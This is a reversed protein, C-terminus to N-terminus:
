IRLKLERVFRLEEADEAVLNPWILGVFRRLTENGHAGEEPENCQAEEKMVCITFRYGCVGPEDISVVLAREGQQEAHRAADGEQEAPSCRRFVVESHRGGGTEDCHQGNTFMHSNNHASGEFTGLSWQQGRSGDAELHVQLIQKRHCYQYSWYGGTDLMLCKSGLAREVDSILSKREQKSTKAPQQVATCESAKRSFQWGLHQSCRSCTLIQWAYPPFFTAVTSRHRDLATGSSNSFLAVQFDQGQPNSMNFLPPESLAGHPDHSCHTHTANSHAHVKVHEGRLTIEQGCRRCMVRAEAGRRVEVVGPAPDQTTLEHAAAAWICLLILWRIRM